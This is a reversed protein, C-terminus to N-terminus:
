LESFFEELSVNFYQCIVDLTSITINVQATEVRGIHINTDFYFVEQTVGHKERLSKVRLAVKQLLIKNRIQGM